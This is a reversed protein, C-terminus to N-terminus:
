VVSKRDLLIPFRQLLIFYVSHVGFANEHNTRRSLQVVNGLSAGKLQEPSAYGIGLDQCKILEVLPCFKDNIM